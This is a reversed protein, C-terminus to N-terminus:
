LSRDRKRGISYARQGQRREPLVYYLGYAVLPILPPSPRRAAWCKGPPGTPGGAMHAAVDFTSTYTLRCVTLSSLTPPSPLSPCDCFLPASLFSHFPRPPQPSKAIFPPLSQINTCSGHVSNRTLGSSIPGTQRYKYLWPRNSSGTRGSSSENVCDDTAETLETLSLAHVLWCLGHFLHWTKLASRYARDGPAGADWMTHRCATWERTGKSCTYVASPCHRGSTLTCTLYHCQM